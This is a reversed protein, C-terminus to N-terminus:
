RFFVVNQGYIKFVPSGLLTRNLWKTKAPPSLSKAM